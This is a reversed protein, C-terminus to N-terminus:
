INNVFNTKFANDVVTYLLVQKTCVRIRGLTNNYCLHLQRKM